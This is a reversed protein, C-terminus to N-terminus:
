KVITLKVATDAGESVVVPTASSRLKQLAESSSTPTGFRVAVVFYRGPSLGRFTFAGSEDTQTLRLTRSLYPWSDGDAGFVIISLAGTAPAFGQVTGTIGGVRKTLIVELGDVNGSQFDYPVDTIDRGQLLVRALVWASAGALQGVRIVGPSSLGPIQFTWDPQVQGSRGGLVGEIAPGTAQFRLFSYADIPKIAPPVDGDFIVRGRATPLRKFALVFPETPTVITLSAVEFSREGSAEVLYTGAPVSPFVFDGNADANTPARFMGKFPGDLGPSLTVLAKPVRRGTTDTVTGAIVTTAVPPLVLDVGHADIGTGLQLPTAAELSTTGPFYTVPFAAPGSRAFPEPLAVLYYDGALLGSVRFWGRDDTPSVVFRSPLGANNVVIARPALRLSVGPAPDGFEDLVRGEIAGLPALQLEKKLREGDAVTIRAGGSSSITADPNAYGDASVLLVYNGAMVRSFAYEGAGDTWATRLPVGGTTLKVAANAIPLGTDSRTVRGSLHSWTGGRTPASLAELEQTAMAEAVIAPLSETAVAFMLGEATQGPAVILIGADEIKETGPYYLRAGSAPPPPTVSVRYRGPPITHVRFRGLDDTKASYSGAITAEGSVDALRDATVVIDSIPKGTDEIVRGELAAARQAIFNVVHDAGSAVELTVSSELFPNRSDMGPTMTLFGPKEVSVRYRGAPVGEFRYAGDKDTATTRTSKASEGKLTVTARRLRARQNNDALEVHGTVTGSGSQTQAQTPPRSSAADALATLLLAVTVSAALRRSM